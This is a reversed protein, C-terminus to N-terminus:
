FINDKLSIHQDVTCFLSSIGNRKSATREADIITQLWFSIFLILALIWPSQEKSYATKKGIGSNSGRLKNDNDAM